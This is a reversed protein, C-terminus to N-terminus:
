IHGLVYKLNVSLEYLVSLKYLQQHIFTDTYKVRIVVHDSPQGWGSIMIFGPDENELSAYNSLIFIFRIKRRWNCRTETVAPFLRYREKKVWLRRLNPSGGWFALDASWDRYLSIRRATQLTRVHEFHLFAAIKARPWTWFMQMATTRKGSQQLLIIKRVM